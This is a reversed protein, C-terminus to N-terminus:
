LFLCQYSVNHKAREAANISTNDFYVGTLLAKVKIFGPWFYYYGLIPAICM